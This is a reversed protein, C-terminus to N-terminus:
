SATLIADLAEIFHANESPTGVTVRLGNGLRRISVGKMVLDDALVQASRTPEFYVFNAQSEAPHLGRESLAATLLDRGEANTLARQHVRDQYKLAEVGAAQSVATVAFPAQTRRLSAMLDADGIGYGIRLGALGYIKSFTRLTLVNPRTPADRVMSAHDPATVFEAYAEDILVVISDPVEDLFATIEEGSLYRGTPNNPNCLYILTTDDRIAGLMGALDHQHDATLPVPVPEAGAIRTTLAYLVFSPDPFIASTGPGGVGLATARILDSSGSGMWVEEPAVGHHAALAHRIDHTSNDPYRNVGAAAVAIADLVEPFPGTPWENSALASISEIGFERAIEAM